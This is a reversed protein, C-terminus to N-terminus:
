PKPVTLKIPMQERIEKEERELQRMYSSYAKMYDYYNDVGRMAPYDKEARRRAEKIKDVARDM